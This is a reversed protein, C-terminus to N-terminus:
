KIDIHLGDYGPYVGEPLEKLLEEHTGAHHSLHTLYTRRPKIEEILELAESINLHSFHPQHRLANIILVDLDRLKEKEEDSIYKCDTIYAFKGIRYGCIPLKGHSVEIPLIEVGNIYFPRDGIEKLEFRPVGPYLNEKFCYDIRRRLDGAVDERCYIPMDGFICYPRLDDIGGVHDYHSHTLLVADIHRLQETLAQDRFDPSADILLSLGMTRVLVSARRRKDRPDDSHCVRCDCAAEPIGKSTGSGLMTVHIDSDIFNVEPNLIIAYKRNVEEIIRESLQAVDKGTAEGENVIVLCNKEYVKAGGCSAGKLGAHEILWGAPVKVTGDGLDIHRVDSCRNLVEQEFYYKGLIPNKFFSGASGIHRPDPVKENRLRIVEDRIERIDPTRGLGEAFEQLARYGQPGAERGPRLKFSVRLVYYRGKWEHKFKSDRYGFGCDEGKITVVERTFSDFCEVNFIVDKAEQGYAGVNQVPSAGVEGPIGAMCEMGRYGNEVCYDVLDSWKEGSGAIVYVTDDDRQYSKIGKIASHLILGDFDSEFLLNSGGGIHYVENDLYEETRSIKLLQAPSSYEAYIKANARIGFTTLASLDKNYEFM